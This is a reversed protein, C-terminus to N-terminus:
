RGIPSPHRPEYVALEDGGPVRITTLLGWGRDTIPTTEIGRATLQAVVAHVDDCMLYLEHEPAEDTPHIALEAPPAAYIPWGGGADVSPWGLVDGLFARLEDAHKSYIIAHVGTIM